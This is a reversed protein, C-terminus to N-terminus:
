IGQKQFVGNFKRRYERFILKLYEYITGFVKLKSKGTRLDFRLEFPVEVVKPKLINLHIIIEAMCAFGQCTIFEDGLLLWAKKLIEIRYARFFTSYDRVGRIPFAIKLLRNVTDSLFVRFAPLKITKSSAHYRSAIAIDAGKDLVELLSKFTGARHTQDCDMSILIDRQGALECIKKIGASFVAGVGRNKKFNIIELARTGADGKLLDLTKDTSGDNVVVLKFDRRLGTLVNTIENIVVSINKEENYAPLLVFIM